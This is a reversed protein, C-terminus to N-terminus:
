HTQLAVLTQCTDRQKWSGATGDKPLMDLMNLRFSGPTVRARCYFPLPNLMLKNPKVSGLIWGSSTLHCAAISSNRQRAAQLM